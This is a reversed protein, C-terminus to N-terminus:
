KGRFRHLLIYLGGGLLLVFFGFVALWLRRNGYAAALSFALGIISLGYFLLRIKGPSFGKEMLRFHIHGRDATTPKQGRVARRIISWSAEALPMLLALLPVYVAVVTYRKIPLWLALVAFFYGISLSGCDGLFIKAPPRNYRLFGVLTGSLLLSLVIADPVNVRVGIIVVSALGVLSVGAALADLGDIINIANVLLIFWFLTMPLSLLGLGVGGVTPVWIQSIGLGNLWLWIGVLAQVLLKGRPRVPRFDDYLGLLFVALGGVFIAVADNSFLALSEPQVLLVVLILTWLVCFIAVGGLQPVPRSHHKRTDPYDLWDRRHSIDIILRLLLATVVAGVASLFGNLLWGTSTM